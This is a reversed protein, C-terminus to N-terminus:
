IEWVWGTYKEIVATDTAHVQTDGDSTTVILTDEEVSKITGMVGGGPRAGGQQGPQPTRDPCLSEM